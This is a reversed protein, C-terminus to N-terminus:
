ALYKPINSMTIPSKYPFTGCEKNGSMQIGIRGDSLELHDRSNGLVCYRTIGVTKM